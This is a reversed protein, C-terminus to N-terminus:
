GNGCAAVVGRIKDVTWPNVFKLNITFAGKNFKAALITGDFSVQTGKLDKITLMTRKGLLARGIEKKSYQFIFSAGGISIDDFKGDFEPGAPKKDKNFIQVSIDASLKYREHQRRELAKNELHTKYNVAEIKHCFEELKKTIGPHEKEVEELDARDLMNLIVPSVSVVTSTCTSISFFTDKGATYSQKVENLFVERGGQSFFTKLMGSDVFFLTNNIKGQQIITKGQPFERKKLKLYIANGEELTLATYLNAWTKQHYFDITNFKEAEIVEETDLIEALAMHDIEILKERWATARKFEKNKALAIILDYIQRVAHFKDGREILKKALVEMDNIEMNEFV